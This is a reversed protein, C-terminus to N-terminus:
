RLNLGIALGVVPTSSGFAGRDSASGTPLSLSCLRYREGVKLTDFGTVDM